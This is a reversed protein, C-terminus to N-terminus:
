CYFDNVYLILNTLRIVLLTFLFLISRSYVSYGWTAAIAM